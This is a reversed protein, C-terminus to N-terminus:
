SVRIKRSRRGRFHHQRTTNHHPTTSHDPLKHNRSTFRTASRRCVDCRAVSSPRATREDFYTEGLDQYAAGRTLLYYCTVLISHGVAVIARKTGRRANLRRFLSPLYGRRAKSAAWAAETLAARLWPSVGSEQWSRRLPYTVERVPLAKLCQRGLPDPLKSVVGTRRVAM